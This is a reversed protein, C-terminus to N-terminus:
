LKGNTNNLENILKNIEKSLNENNLKMAEKETLLNKIKNNEKDLLENIKNKEIEIDNLQKNKMKM